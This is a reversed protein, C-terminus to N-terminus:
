KKQTEGYKIIIQASIFEAKRKGYEIHIVKIRSKIRIM